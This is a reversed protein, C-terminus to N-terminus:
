AANVSHNSSGMPQASALVRSGNRPRRLSCSWESSQTYWAWDGFSWLRPAGNRRYRSSLLKTGPFRHAIVSSEAARRRRISANRSRMELRLPAMRRILALRSRSVTKRSIMSPARTRVPADMPKIVVMSPVSRGRANRRSRCLPPRACAFHRGPGILRLQELVQPVKRARQSRSVYGTVEPREPEARVRQRVPGPLGRRDTM